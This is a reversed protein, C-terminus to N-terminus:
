STFLHPFNQVIDRVLIKDNNGSSEEDLIRDFCYQLDRIHDIFEDAECHLLILHVLRLLENREKDDRSINILQRVVIDVFVEVDNKYFISITEKRSFLDIMLKILSNSVAPIYKYSKVPDDGRNFILLLTQTFMKPNAHELLASLAINDHRDNDIPFTYNYM